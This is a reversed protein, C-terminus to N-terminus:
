QKGPHPWFGPRSLGLEQSPQVLIAPVVVLVMGCSRIIDANLNFQLLMTVVAGVALEVGVGQQEVSLALGDLTPGECQRQVHALSPPIDEESPTNM